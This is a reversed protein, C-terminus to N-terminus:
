RISDADPDDPLPALPDEDPFLERRRIEAAFRKPHFTGELRALEARAWALLRQTEPEEPEGVVAIWTRIKDATLARETVQALFNSRQREREARADALRRNEQARMAIRVKRAEAREIECLYDLWEDLSSAISDIQAELTAYKNDRWNQRQREACLRPDVSVELMGLPVKVSSPFADELWTYPPTRRQREVVAQRRRDAESPQYPADQFKERLRFRLEQRAKSIEIAGSLVRASVGRKELARVLGDLIFVARELSDRGLRLELINGGGYSVVGDVPKAARILEVSEAIAQHPRRVRGWLATRQTRNAGRRVVPTEVPAPVPEAKAAVPGDTRLKAPWDSPMPVGVITELWPKDNWPLATKGPSAGKEIRRWYQGNPMPIRHFGCVQRLQLESLGLREAAEARPSSWVLDYIDQRTLHHAMAHVEAGM